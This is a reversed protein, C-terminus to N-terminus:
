QPPTYRSGGPQFDAKSVRRSQPPRPPPAPSEDAVTYTTSGGSRTSTSNSTSTSTNTSSSTKGGSSSSTSSGVTNSTNANTTNNFSKKDVTMGNQITPGTGDGVSKGAAWPKEPEPPVTSNAFKDEKLQDIGAQAAGADTPPAAPAAAEPPPPTGSNSMLTDNMQKSFDSLEKM